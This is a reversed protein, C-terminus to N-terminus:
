RQLVVRATAHEGSIECRIFYAGAPLDSTSLPFSSTSVERSLVMRGQSDYMRLTLPKSSSTTPTFSVRTAGRCPNPECTLSLAPARTPNAKPEAVAVNGLSDTKILYVDNEVVGFSRTLGTVVYGGDATQQVSRGEDYPGDGFTRTWMASGDAGTKILWADSPYSGNSATLGGVIYGGDTTQQVSFGQDVSRGGFTRTWQTDGRADTKILYVDSSEAGFSTTPAVIIYGTDTTQQISRGGESGTSGYTRTWLTDGGADTKVLYVDYSSPSRANGAIIYGDDVTQQVSYGNDNGTGGYTRTWMTDGHIDTKVLYVDAQGMGFSRTYGTIICGGDATVQVSPGCDNSDGGFTKTWLTDGNSNTRILYVDENGAGFSSTKGSIIYGSDTTQRVSFGFDNSDGGFTRTWLTDGLSDTKILYVDTNSGEFISTQGAIIYGGDATQRVSFGRDDGIGGYTRQFTIQAPLFSPLLIAALAALALASSFRNRYM